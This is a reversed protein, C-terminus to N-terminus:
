IAGPVRRVRWQRADADFHWETGPPLISGDPANGPDINPTQPEADVADPIGDGDTDIESVLSRIRSRDGQEMASAELLTLLISRILPWHKALTLM